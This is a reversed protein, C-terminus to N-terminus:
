KAGMAKNIKWRVVVQLPRPLATFDDLIAKMRVREDDTADLWANVDPREPTKREKKETNAMTEKQRMVQDKLERAIDLSAQLAPVLDPNM